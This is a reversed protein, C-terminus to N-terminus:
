IKFCKGNTCNNVCKKMTKYSFLIAHGLMHRIDHMCIFLSGFYCVVRCKSDFNRVFYLLHLFNRKPTRCTTRSDRELPVIFIKNVMERWLATELKNWKNRMVNGFKCYQSSAFGFKTTASINFYRALTSFYVSYLSM